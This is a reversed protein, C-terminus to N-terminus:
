RVTASPQNAMWQRVAQRAAQGQPTLRADDGAFLIAEFRVGRTNALDPTAGAVLLELVRAADGVEAAVHLLTNGMADSRNIDAGAALLKRVQDNRRSQVARFLPTRAAQGGILDVPAGHAILIDLYQPDQVSAALHAVSEGDMGPIAPNAGARLLADLAQPQRNWIAWELLTVNDHGPTDLATGPALAAIRAADGDAIAQAMPLLADPFPLAPALQAQPMPTDKSAAPFPLLALGAALALWLPRSSFTLPM